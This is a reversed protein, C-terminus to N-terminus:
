YIFEQITFFISCHQFITAMGNGSKISTFFPKSRL